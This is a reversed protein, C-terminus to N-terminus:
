TDTSVDDWDQDLYGILWNLAYHRELVVGWELGAPMDTGEREAQRTAWHYRYILDAADLLESQDRLKAKEWFGEIGNEMFQNVMWPVDAIKDPYPLEDSFGLAWLLVNLGEYRWIFQVFDSDTAEDDQLFARERPTLYSAADFREIVDITMEKDRTEGYAAIIVLAIARQAVEERHRRHSQAVTEITPLGGESIPVGEAQLQAHSRAKRDLAEQPAPGPYPPIAVSTNDLEAAYKKWAARLEYERHSLDDKQAHASMNGFLTLLCFLVFKSVHNMLMNRESEVLFIRIMNAFHLMSTIPM